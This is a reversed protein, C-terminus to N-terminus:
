SIPIPTAAGPLPACHTSLARITAAWGCRQRSCAGRQRITPSGTSSRACSSWHRNPMGRRSKSRGPSCGSRPSIEWEHARAALVAQLYFARPHNPAVALVDRTQDLMDRARGLDGLTAARDLMADINNPQVALARDYWPLAAVLGYRDRILAASLILAEVNNPDLAVAREAAALAGGADGGERRFRATDSWAFSDTPALQTALALERGAAARDGGMAAARMRAAYAAFPQPVKDARAM